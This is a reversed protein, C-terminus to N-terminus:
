TRASVSVSTPEKPFHAVAAAFNLKQEGLSRVKEVQLVRGSRYVQGSSHRWRRAATHRQLPADSHSATVLTAQDTSDFIERTRM